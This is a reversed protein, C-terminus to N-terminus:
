LLPLPIYEQLMEQIKGRGLQESDHFEEGWFPQVHAMPGPLYRKRTFHALKVFTTLGAPPSLIQIPYWKM